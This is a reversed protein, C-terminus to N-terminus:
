GSLEPWGFRRHGSNNLHFFLKGQLNKDGMYNLPISIRWCKRVQSIPMM